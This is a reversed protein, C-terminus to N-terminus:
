KGLLLWRLRGLFNRGVFDRAAWFWTGWMEKRFRDYEERALELANLEKAECIVFGARMPPPWDGGSELVSVRQRIAKDAEDRESIKGELASLRAALLFSYQQAADLVPAMVAETQKAAGEAARRAAKATAGRM